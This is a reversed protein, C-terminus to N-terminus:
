RGAGCVIYRISRCGVADSTGGEALAREAPRTPWSSCTSPGAVLGMLALVGLGESSAVAWWSTPSRSVTM